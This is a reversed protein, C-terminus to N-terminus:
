MKIFKGIISDISSTIRIYHIEGARLQSVDLKVTHSGATRFNEDVIKLVAGDKNLVEITVNGEGVVEFEINLLKKVPNPYLKINDSDGADGDSM